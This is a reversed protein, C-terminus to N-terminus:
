SEGRVAKESERNLIGNLLTILKYIGKKFIVVNPQKLLAEITGVIDHEKSLFDKMQYINGMRAKMEDLQYKIDALPTKPRDLLTHLTTLDGIIQYLRGLDSNLLPVLMKAAKTDKLVKALSYSRKLGKFINKENYYLIDEKLSNTLNTPFKTIHKGDSYIDYIVSFELYRNNINAIIDTKILGGSKIADELSFLHGRYELIGEIIQLPNWRLIHFRISKRATLFGIPTNAADLLRMAGKAEAPSIVKARELSAVKSKSNTVNFNMIKDNDVDYHANQHFCDWEPVEGCKVETIYCEPIMRLNKMIEKLKSAVEPISMNVKENADFDASYQQSRISSSGVIQLHKLGTMSATKLIHLVSKSYNAPFEKSSLLTTM